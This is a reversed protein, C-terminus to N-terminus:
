IKKGIVGKIIFVIGIVIPILGIIILAVGLDRWMTAPLFGFGFATPFVGIVVLLLGKEIKREKSRVCLMIFWIGLILILAIVVYFINSMMFDKM